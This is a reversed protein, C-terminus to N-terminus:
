KIGAQRMAKQVLDRLWKSVTGFARSAQKMKALEEKTVRLCVQHPMAKEKLPPRGPKRKETEM